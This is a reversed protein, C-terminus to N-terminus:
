FFFESNQTEAHKKYSRSLFFSLTLIVIQSVLMIIGFTIAIVGLTIEWWFMVAGLAYAIQAFFITIEYWDVLFATAQLHQGKVQLWVLPLIAVNYSWILLPILSDETASSTFLLFIFCCWVTILILGYICEVSYILMALATKNNELVKEKLNDLLLTPMSALSIAFPGFLVYFIGM